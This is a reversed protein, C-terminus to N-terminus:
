LSSQRLLLVIVFFILIFTLIIYKINPFGVTQGNRLATIKLADVWKIFGESGSVHRMKCLLFSALSLSKKAFFFFPFLVIKKLFLKIFIWFMERQWNRFIINKRVCFFSNGSTPRELHVLKSLLEDKRICIRAPRDIQFFPQLLFEELNIQRLTSFMSIELRSPSQEFHSFIM